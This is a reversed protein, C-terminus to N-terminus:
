EELVLRAVSEIHSTQPYFDLVRLSSIGYGARVLDGLDRSLTVPNCSVYSVQRPKREALWARVEPGLGPRPPDVVVADPRGRAAGSALWQEVSVPYLDPEDARINARAFRMALTSSEVATVRRFGAPLLAGFLGVGCYLDVASEGELGDLASSALRDLLALNSQFFCGVSFEIRRGRVSVALTREDDVGEVALGTGDSFLVFRDLGPPGAAQGALFADIPGVAVPCGPAPVVRESRAAMYGLRGQGDRHVQVRSRYRLGPGPEVGIEVAHELRGVRRLSEEVIGRKLELQRAHAIHLWDCGGCRGAIPCAPAVRDPSAVLVEELVARDFDRRAEVIRARVTEGPLVGPVFVAKGGARALGDGGAVLREIGLERV